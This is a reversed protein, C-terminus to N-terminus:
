RSARFRDSDSLFLNLDSLFENSNDNRSLDIFGARNPNILAKVNRSPDKPQGPPLEYHRAIFNAIRQDEAEGAEETSQVAFWRAAFACSKEEQALWKMTGSHDQTRHAKQEYLRKSLNVGVGINVIATVGKIREFQRNLYIEYIGPCKPVLGKMKGDRELPYLRSWENYIQTM